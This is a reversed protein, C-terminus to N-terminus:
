DIMAHKMEIPSPVAAHLNWRETCARAHASRLPMTSLAPPLCADDSKFDLVDRLLPRHRGPVHGLLGGPLATRHGQSPRHTGTLLAHLRDPITRM